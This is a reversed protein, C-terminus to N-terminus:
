LYIEFELVLHVFCQFTRGGIDYVPKSKQIETMPIQKYKPIQSKFIGMKISEALASQEKIESGFDWELKRMGVEWKWNGM